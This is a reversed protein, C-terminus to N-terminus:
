RWQAANGTFGDPTVQRCHSSCRTQPYRSCCNTGALTGGVAVYVVTKGDAALKQAVQQATESIAIGHWSLWDWNGLIVTTGEVVASM